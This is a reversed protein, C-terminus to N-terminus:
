RDPDEADYSEADADADADAGANRQPDPHGDCDVDGPLCDTKSACGLLLTSFILIRM